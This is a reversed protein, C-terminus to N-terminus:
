SGIRTIQLYSITASSVTDGGSIVVYVRQGAVVRMQCTGVVQANTPYNQLGLQRTVATEINYIMIGANANAETCVSFLYVGSIPATFYGTSSSYASHTDEVKTLYKVVQGSLHVGHGVYEARVVPPVEAMNGNSVKRVRWRSNVTSWAVTNNDRPYKGRIISAQTPTSGSVYVGMGVYCALSTSWHFPEVPFSPPTWPSGALWQYEPILIDTGQIPRSFTLIYEDSTGAPTTTPISNGGPGSAGGNSAYETFDSALNVNSTWQAIPVSAFISVEESTFMTTNPPSDYPNTANAKDDGSFLINGGSSIVMLAGAKLAGAGGDRYWRGVVLRNLAPNANIARATLGSPLPISGSSATSSNGTFRGAVEISSGVRRYKIDMNSISTWGTITPIYSQWEGIAAGIAIDKTGVQVDDIRMTWATTTTTITHFILRYETSTSPIFTALFTGPKGYSAPIERVSLPILNANTKDYLFLGMYGDAYNASAEYVVEIKMPKHLQGRDITFDYSLGEGQGNSAAKTILGSGAGVLPTVITREFTISAATGGTGDVPLVGATDKYTAWGTTASEFGGNPFNVGPTGSASGGAVVEWRLDNTAGAEFRYARLLFDGSSLWLRGNDDATLATVGDPRTTPATSGVYVKASGAEHWGDTGADGALLDMHHEKALRERVAGKLERIRDDGQAPSDSGAPTAEFGSNWVAM